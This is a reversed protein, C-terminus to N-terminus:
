DSRCLSTGGFNIAYPASKEPFYSTFAGADGAPIDRAHIKPEDNLNITAAAPKIVSERAALCRSGLGM